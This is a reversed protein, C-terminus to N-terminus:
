PECQRYFRKGHHPTIRWNVGDYERGMITVRLGPKKTLEVKELHTLGTLSIPCDSVVQLYLLAFDRWTQQKQLDASPLSFERLFDFVCTKLASLDEYPTTIWKKGNQIVELYEQEFARLLRHHPARNHALEIHAAWNAFMRFEPNNYAPRRDLMKRGEVFFYLVRVEDFLGDTLLRDLKTQLADLM